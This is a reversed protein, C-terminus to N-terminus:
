PRIERNRLSIIAVSKREVPAASTGDTGVTEKSRFTLEVRVAIVENLNTPRWQNAQANITTADVWDAALVSATDSGAPPNTRTLYTIQMDHVDPVYERRETTITTADKHLTERILARRGSTDSIGVYWIAPDFKTIVSGVTFVKLVSNTNCDVNNAWGLSDSCNSSPALSDHAVVSTAAFSNPSTLELIAGSISDCVFVLDQKRLKVASSLTFQNVAVNHAAVTRLVADDNLTRLVVIADTGTVRENSSSGFSISSGAITENGDYGRLTGANWDGWWPITLSATRVVSNVARVGCPNTGADRIERNMQDYAFRASEQIQALNENVRFSQQNSTFITIVGGVLFIGLVMAIMIEILGLGRMAQIRNFSFKYTNM